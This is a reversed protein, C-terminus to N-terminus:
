NDSILREIKITLNKIMLGSLNFEANISEQIFAAIEGYDERPDNFSFETQILGEPLLNFMAENVLKGADSTTFTIQSDSIKKIIKGANIICVDYTGSAKLRMLGYTSDRMTLMRKIQWPQDIFYKTKVFYIEPKFSGKFDEGWHDFIAFKSLSEKTLTYLGPKFVDAIQGYKLFVAQQYDRVNLKSGYTVGLPMPMRWVMIGTTDETWEIVNGFRTKVQDLIRM